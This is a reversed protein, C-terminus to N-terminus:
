NRIASRSPALPVYPIAFERCGLEDSLDGCDDALDCIKLRDICMKNACTYELTPDCPRIQKVCMTMNNEDSGDGCNDIGDCLQYRAICKRNACQFRRHTDCEFTAACIYIIKKKKVKTLMFIDVRILLASVVRPRIRTPIIVAIM